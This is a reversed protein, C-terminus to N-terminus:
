QERLANNMADTIPTILYSLLTREGTVILVEAPMGPYLKVNEHRYEQLEKKDIEVRALYYSEGTRENTFSDASVQIVKGDMPPVKRTKYASLRVLAELGSHVVDIDQLQVKAEIILKDNQPVIDMLTGGPAVVGGVTHVKLGTIIGNIPSTIVVRSASDASARIKEELDAVQAKTDKLESLVEKQFGTKLNIIQIDAESIAQESRSIQALYEGRKGKINEYERELALLRPRSANGKELLMRVTEIEQSLLNMQGQASKEQATLGEIEKRLQEIKQKLVATQGDLNERRSKFLREQSDIAEDIFSNNKQKKLLDEPFVIEDRDDREALLRAETTRATISQATFIDLRAKTNTEDLRVLPDGKKVMDGERVFIEKVIGGELHQITKRNSDLVVHGMSVAASSLPVFGAYIGFVGFLLVCCWIGFVIAGRAFHEPLVESGDTPMRSPFFRENFADIRALTSDAANRIRAPLPANALAPPKASESM